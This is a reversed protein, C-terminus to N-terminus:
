AKTILEDIETEVKRIRSSERSELSSLESLVSQVQSKVRSVSEHSNKIKSQMFWDAILGDFFFDAFKAFGGTEIHIDERIRIDALEARFRRLLIQAQEAEYKANDIHSHKALDSILGGGLMDWVGWGEASNLSSMAKELSSIVSRGASIAERIEKLANKSNNLQETLNLLKQARDPDSKILMDRKAAYLSEYKRECDMYNGRESCLKSIEHKVDELDRVAQDYKLKAGLAEKKENELREELRGLVSYFIGALSNGELKKVDLDEKDLITKLESVKSELSLQEDKLGKLMSDIKYLRFVGQQAEELRKNIETYM